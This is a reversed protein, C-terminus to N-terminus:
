RRPANTTVIVPIAWAHFENTRGNEVYRILTCPPFRKEHNPIVEVANTTEWVQTRVTYTQNTLVGSFLASCTVALAAVIGLQKQMHGKM